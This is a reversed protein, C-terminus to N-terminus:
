TYFNRMTLSKSVWESYDPGGSASPPNSKSGSGSGGSENKAITKNIPFPVITPSDPEELASPDLKSPGTSSSSLLTSPPQTNVSGGVHNFHTSTASYDAHIFGYKHANKRIWKGAASNWNIDFAEGYMHASNKSSGKTNANTEPDRYSSSIGSGIDIGEEAAAAAMRKFDAAVNGKPGTSNLMIKRGKYDVYGTDVLNVNGAKPTQPQVSPQPKTPPPANFADRVASAFTSSKTGFGDEFSGKKKDKLWKLANSWGANHAYALVELKERESLNDYEPNGSLYEHNARTYAAFYREQMEPNKRFRERAAADDGEYTEGLYRAADERAAAGMQYRGAYADGSGGQVDYVGGSEKSAIVDRFTNFDGQKFGAKKVQTQATSSSVASEALSISPTSSPTSTSGSQTVQSGGADLAAKIDKVGKGNVWDKISDQINQIEFKWDTQAKNVDSIAGDIKNRLKGESDFFDLNIINEWLQKGVDMISTIADVATDWMKKISQFIRQVTLRIRNVENIIQPLKDLVFGVIIAGLAKLLRQFPGGGKSLANNAGGPGIQSEPKKAELLKEANVKKEADNARFAALDRAVIAKKDADVKNKVVKKLGLTAQLVGTLGIDITNIVEYTPVLKM